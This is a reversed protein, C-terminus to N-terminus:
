FSYALSARLILPTDISTYKNFTTGSAWTIAWPAATNTANLIEFSPRFTGRKELSFDRALRINLLGRTPGQETGYPEVNITTAGAHPLNYTSTRQGQLGSYIIYIPSVEIKWPLHYDGSARAQWNWSANLPFFQENPNAIYGIYPSTIDWQHDKTATFSALANWKGSGGRKTLAAEITSFHDANPRNRYISQNFSAGVYSPNLDYVVIPKQGAIPTATLNAGHGPDYLNVPINWASYPILNPTQAWQNPDEIYTYGVRASLGPGLQREVIGQYESSYQQKLSSNTVTNPIAGTGTYTGGIKVFAPGNPNLDVTGPTYDCYGGNPGAVPAYPATLSNTCGAEAETWKFTTLTATLPEFNNGFDDAMTWNFRGWSAKLVTKGDGFIDWAGGIRPAANRWTGINLQAYTAAAGTSLNPNSPVTWPPGFPGAVKSQAPIFPSFSDMRVGVDITLNKLLHWTDEGYFGGEHLKTVPSTPYNVVGIFAPIGSWRSCTTGM